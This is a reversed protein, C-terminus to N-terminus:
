CSREKIENDTPWANLIAKVLSALPIAFFVGWFGWLGGFILVAVIIIVPHLNVAESFLLPVVLNGDIAQVILYAIMLYAFNASLGWQFLAVLVVPVTVAVAGIYPILVSVGVLVALLASYRLDMFFFVAYTAIGVILMEIVKGRIYNLIQIDMEDWVQVVLKNNKPIYQSCGKMLSVKDKLLFTMMLPVLIAYVVLAALTLISSYSYSLIFGSSNLAYTRINDVATTIIQVNVVDPYKSPLTMLYAQGENLMAPLDHILAALQKFLIPLIGVFAFVCLTIFTGMVILTAYSRTIKYRSLLTVPRDLLYSLVVAVLLPMLISGLFYFTLVAMALIFFLVGLNPDIFRQQYWQYFQKFM